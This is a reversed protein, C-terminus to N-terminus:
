PKEAKSTGVSLPPTPAHLESQGPQFLMEVGIGGEVGDDLRQGADAEFDFADVIGGFLQRREGDRLDQGRLAMRLGVLQLDEGDLGAGALSQLHDAARRVGAGAEGPYESRRTG